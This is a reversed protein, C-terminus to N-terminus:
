ADKRWWETRYSREIEKISCEWDGKFRVAKDDLYVDAVVKRNNTNIPDANPNENIHDYPILNEALYSEVADVDGRATFIIIIWGISKLYQIAHAAGEVPPPFTPKGQWGTYNSIVGDFDIAVCKKNM